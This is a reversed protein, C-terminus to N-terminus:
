RGDHKKFYNFSFAGIDGITGVKRGEYSGGVAQCGDEIVRLGHRAAVEMITNMDCVAGWM